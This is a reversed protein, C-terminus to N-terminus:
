KEYEKLTEDIKDWIGKFVEKCPMKAKLREAFQKVLTKAIECKLCCKKATFDEIANLLKENKAKLREIEAKYEDAKRYGANYLGEAIKDATAPYVVYLEDVIKATERIQKQKDM